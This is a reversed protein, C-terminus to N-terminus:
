WCKEVFSRILGIEEEGAITHTKEYEHWDINLGAAKLTNVQERVKACPIMPDQTGHTFLM